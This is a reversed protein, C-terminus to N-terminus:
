GIRRDLHEHSARETRPASAPPSPPAPPANLYSLDDDLEEMLRKVETTGIQAWINPLVDRLISELREIRAELRPDTM